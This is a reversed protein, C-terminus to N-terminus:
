KDTEKINKELIYKMKEQLQKHLNNLKNLNNQYDEKLYDKILEIYELMVGIIETLIFYIDNVSPSICISSVEQNKIDYNKELTSLDVHIYSSLYSYAPYMYEYNGKQAFQLINTKKTYDIKIKKKNKITGNNILMNIKQNRSIEHNLLVKDLNSNDKKVSAAIFFSELMTRFIAHVQDELGYSYLISCSQFSKHVICFSTVLFLAIKDNHKIDFNNYMDYILKNIEEILYFWDKYTTKIKNIIDSYEKALFGNNNTLFINEM